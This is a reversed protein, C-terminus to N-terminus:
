FMNRVFTLVGSGSNYSNTKHFTSKSGEPSEFQPSVQALGACSNGCIEPLVAEVDLGAETRFRVGVYLGVATGM